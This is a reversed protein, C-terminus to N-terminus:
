ILFSIVGRAKLGSDTVTVVPRGKMADLTGEAVAMDGPGLFIVHCSASPDPAPLYRVTIAREGSKLGSAAQELKGGFPDTGVVCITM